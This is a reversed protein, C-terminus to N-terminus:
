RVKVTEKKKELMGVFQQSEIWVIAKTPCRRIAEITEQSAMTPNMVPLNREMRLLGAPSDSVCIGCGTCATRCLERVGDGAQQSKCQVILHRDEPILEFLDKPCIKVCDGCSTCKAFDVVPLGNPAMQIADFQCIRECDALGLCGYTCGKFGGTITAAARCSSFGDYDAAQKAVDIGGRCMLRAVTRVGSGADVGLFNAIREAGESGGVPCAGPKVEGKVALEAFARCGPVGCAGCNAGPLMDSVIDIRPDEFVKLKNDAVALVGALLVSLGFLFLVAYAIIM